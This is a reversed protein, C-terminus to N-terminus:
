LATAATAEHDHHAGKDVNAIDSMARSGRRRPSDDVGSWGRATGYLLRPSLIPFNYIVAEKALEASSHSTVAVLLKDILERRAKKVRSGQRYVALRNGEKVQHDTHGLFPNALPPQYLTSLPHSYGDCQSHRLEEVGPFVRERLM